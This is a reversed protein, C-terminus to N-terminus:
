DFIYQDPNVPVGHLRVEYHLLADTIGGTCGMLAIQDGRCVRDGPKKLSEDIHAYRTTIGFGHDIVMMRGSTGHLGVFSVMGEATAVVPTGKFNAIDIGKHFELADSYPSKRYGFRSSMRGAAPLISPTHALFNNEEQLSKLVTEFSVQQILDIDDAQKAPRHMNKMGGPYERTSDLQANFDEPMSGGVGFMDDLHGQPNIHAITRIETELQNLALMQQKLEDIKAAFQQIQRSQLEVVATQRRLQHEVDYRQDLRSQYLVYQVLCFVVALVIVLLGAKVAIFQWQSICYRKLTTSSDGMVILSLKKAM